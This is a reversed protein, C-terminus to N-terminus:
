FRWKKERSIQLNVPKLSFFHGNKRLILKFFERFQRDGEPDGTLQGKEGRALGREVVGLLVELDAVGVMVAVGLLDAVVELLPAMALSGAGRGKEVSVEGLLGLCVRRGMFGRALISSKDTSEALNTM